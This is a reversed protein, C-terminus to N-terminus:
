PLQLPTTNESASAPAPGTVTATPATKANEPTTTLAHTITTSCGTDSGGDVASDRGEDDGEHVTEPSPPTYTAGDHSDSPLLETAITNGIDTTNGTESPISSEGPVAASAKRNPVAHETTPAGSNTRGNDQAFLDKTSKRPPLPPPKAKANPRNVDENTPSASAGSSSAGTGADYPPESAAGVKNSSMIGNVNLMRYVNQISAGLRPVVKPSEPPPELPIEPTPSSGLAMIDGRHSAHISPITMMAASSPQAAFLPSNGSTSRSSVTRARVSPDVDPLSLNSSTSPRRDLKGPALPPTTSPASSPLSPTSTLSLHSIETTTTPPSPSIHRASLTSLVADSTANLRPSPLPSVGGTYGKSSAGSNRRTLSSDDSLTRKRPDVLEGATDAPAELAETTPPTGSESANVAETPRSAPAPLPQSIINSSAQRQQSLEARRREEVQVRMEEYSQKPLTPRPPSSPRKSNDGPRGGRTRSGVGWGWKKMTERATAGLQKEAAKNKLNAILASAAGMKTTNPRDDESGDSDAKTSSRSSLWSSIDSPMTSRHSQGSTPRLGKGESGNASIGSTPFPSSPPADDSASRDLTLTQATEGSIPLTQQEHTGTVPTAHNDPRIDGREVVSPTPAGLSSPKLGGNLAVDADGPEADGATDQRPRQPDKKPSSFWTSRRNPNSSTSTVLLEAEDSLTLNPLSTTTDARDIGTLVLEGIKTQKEGADPVSVSQSKQSRSRAVRGPTEPEAFDAPREHRKADPFIGGRVAYDSTDFFPIDDM